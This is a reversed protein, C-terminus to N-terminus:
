RCDYKAPDGELMRISAGLSSQIRARVDDELQGVSKRIADKWAPGRDYAEMFAEALDETRRTEIMAEMIAVSQALDKRSKATGDKDTLRRSAVILKHIAFREPAPVNVAVGAGHLLVARIPHYILYDLFRLPQAAAGGLAPMPTPRGSYDDTGRNPTLFEVRYGERSAYQTTFRGDAQHPIERFTPDVTKLTELMPPAQDEVAVSISHFQAFDADATIMAMGPLRIGLIAPYCQYAVTGVLVGRLRFFGAEALAQVIEGTQREPRPLYAERVLTSVLKRRERVDAKLDKFNEVRRTIETDEVPGVYTRKKGGKGDPLDFYWYRRGKVEASIFRGEVNFESAFSSDLARQSLESYLTQYTHTLKM